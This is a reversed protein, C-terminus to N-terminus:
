IAARLFPHTIKFSRLCHLLAQRCVQVTPRPAGVHEEGAYPVGGGGHQQPLAEMVRGGHEANARRQELALRDHLQIQKLHRQQSASLVPPPPPPPPQPPPPGCQARAGVADKNHAQTREQLHLHSVQRDDRQRLTSQPPISCSPAPCTAALYRFSSALYRFNSM